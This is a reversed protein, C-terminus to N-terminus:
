IMLQALISALEDIQTTEINKWKECKGALVPVVPYHPYQVFLGRLGKMEPIKGEAGFWPHSLVLIIPELGENEQLGARLVRALELSCSAPISKLTRQLWTELLDAPHNLELLWQGKKIGDSNTLLIVRQGARRISQAITFAAQRTIKEIPGFTPPSVDLLIVAARIRPPEAMERARFLLESRLHRYMQVMPPMALQSPLLSTWDNSLPGMEIDGVQIRDVGLARGTSQGSIGTNSIRVGLLRRQTISLAPIDKICALLRLPLGPDAAVVEPGLLTLMSLLRDDIKKAADTLLSIPPAPAEPAISKGKLATILADRVKAPPSNAPPKWQSPPLGHLLLAMLGIRSEAPWKLEALAKLGKYDGALKALPGTLKGGGFLILLDRVLSLPPYIKLRHMQALASPLIQLHASLPQHSNAAPDMRTVTKGTLLDRTDWFRFIDGYHSSVIFGGDPSCALKYFKEKFSFRKLEKGTHADWVRITHDSKPKSQSGTALLRGDASWDSASVGGSHGKCPFLISGSSPDLVLVTGSSYTSLLYRNDPSWCLTWIFGKHVNFNKLCQGTGADWIRINGGDDGSAIFRGNSSWSLAQTEETHGECIRVCEGTKVDWIRLQKEKSFDEISALRKNDPSWRVRKVQNFHGECRLVCQGNAADWIRVTKDASASAIRSGDSSVAVDIIFERHQESGEWIQRGKKLDWCRFKGDRHGTATTQGDPFMALAPFHDSEGRLVGLCDGEAEPFHPVWPAKKAPAPPHIGITAAQMAIYKELSNNVSITKKDQTFDSVDWIQLIADGFVSILHNRDPAFSLSLVAGTADMQFLQYGSITDWLRV